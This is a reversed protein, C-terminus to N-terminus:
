SDITNAAICSMITCSCGVLCLICRYMCSLIINCQSELGIRGKINIHEREPESWPYGAYTLSRRTYRLQRLLHATIPLRNRTPTGRSLRLRSIGAQVRRLVPLSSKERPDPLGLSLQVNRVAAMYSQGTQPALGEDAMYAAFCCLLHETVPFPDPIHYQTCFKNFKKMASDYSRRTNPALGEEFYRQVSGALSSLDLGTHDLLLEILTSPLAVPTSSAQPVKSLFM